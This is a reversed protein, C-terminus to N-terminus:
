VTFRKIKLLTLYIYFFFPYHTKTRTSKMKFSTRCVRPPFFFPRQPRILLPAHHTYMMNYRFQSSFKYYVYCFDIVNTESHNEAGATYNNIITLNNYVNPARVDLGTPNKVPGFIKRVSWYIQFFSLVDILILEFKPQNQRRVPM